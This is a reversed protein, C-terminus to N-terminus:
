PGRSATGRTPRSSTSWRSGAIACRSSSRTRSAGQEGAPRERGPHRAAADQDERGLEAAVAARAAGQGRADVPRGHARLLDQPRGGLVAPISDLLTILNSPGVISVGAAYVDPTFAVGALTAYGGYSGGIIGIRKPDAIGKAVLYKVGWTLDDQM